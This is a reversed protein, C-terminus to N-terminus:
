APLLAAALDDANAPRLGAALAAGRGVYSLPLQETAALEIVTGLRRTTDAHTLAIAGPGLVRVGAVLERAAEAGIPAPVTLHLEDAGITELEAALVRLEAEALPSVGPTDLLVLTTERLEALLEAARGADDEVHVPVAVPALLRQLEAGGDKPRLAICAVPLPSRQAYAVALGAVCRTKGAGSPGAFAIVRGGAGRRNSAIPIREALASRLLPAVDDTEALPLVHHVVESVLETALEPSLGRATLEGIAHRHEPAKLVALQAPADDGLVVVQPPQVVEAPAHAVVEAVLADDVPIEEEEVTVAEPEDLEEVVPAAAAAERLRELLEPDAKAADQELPEPVPDDQRLLGQTFLAALRDRDGGTEPFLDDLGPTEAVREDIVPKIAPAPPLEAEIAALQQAFPSAESDDTVDLSPAAEPEPRMADVEVFKKAFFGGVGGELEERQRLIVADDGLEARIQPILEELGRGRYTKVDSM